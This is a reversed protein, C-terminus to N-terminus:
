LLKRKIEEALSLCFLLIRIWFFFFFFSFHLLLVMSFSFFLVWWWSHRLAHDLKLSLLLTFTFLLGHALVAQLSKFVRGWSAVQRQTLMIRKKSSLSFFFSTELQSDFWWNWFIFFFSSNCLFSYNSNLHFYWLRRCRIKSFLPKKLSMVKSTRMLSSVSRQKNLIIQLKVSIGATTLYVTAPFTPTFKNPHILHYNTNHPVGCVHADM